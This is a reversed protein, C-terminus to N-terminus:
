STSQSQEHLANTHSLWRASDLALNAGCESELNGPRCRHAKRLPLLPCELIDGKAGGFALRGAEAFRQPQVFRQRRGIVELFVQALIPLLEALKGRSHLEEVPIVLCHGGADADQVVEGAGEEGVGGSNQGPVVVGDGGAWEFAGIVFDFGHVALVVSKAVSFEEGELEILAV